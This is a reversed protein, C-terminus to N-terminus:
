LKHKLLGLLYEGYGSKKLPEALEKLQQESIFGQRWAIEEICGVKLGQREEIVQVFQGAQMLSNFTGTDLWATGRSLIGVKLAGKELYVKNVDTIEYEGRASPKINKAIEVVSNDYFYLGPVAYNSKPELPKEEISLAKFNSDFEVVGYREPDSVHYAFVVGGEPNTNSQLLEVINSGFFINDGLVLAVSDKGIFEEGIVFAQALGNPIAQEAYSFQCGISAGDGLLKKFNPLDHPTSIILIEHIGAMMLISLPYYIMPKDYVPMMQKSMALTLPHLRTGSGGALIIGKM